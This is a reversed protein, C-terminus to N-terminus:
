TALLPPVAKLWTNREKIREGSLAFGTVAGGQRCVAALNADEGDIQWAGGERPPYLIVPCAPTKVTIPMAPWHVPTPEVALTKALARAANMLPMVFQLVQGEVEACDGLAYINAKSTQLYKDVKVGRNVELGAARALDLRARLGVASLVADAPLNQGNTLRVALTGDKGQDVRSVLPGLHFRVGLHELAGQLVQGIPPPVLGALLTESPAVVDVEFGASALDNAFECGILGAGMILVKKRDSLATHFAQFDLRNNISMVRDVADGELPAKIPEAGLALVLKGWSLAEGQDLQLTQTTPDIHTVRTHTLLRAQFQEAAQEASLQILDDPSQGKGFANSLMPKSYGAGDDATVITLPTTSDQKRWERALTYAALGSGVIVLSAPQSSTAM